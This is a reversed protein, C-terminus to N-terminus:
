RGLRVEKGTSASEYLADMVQQVKLSEEIPVLPKKNEIISNVFHQIRDEHTGNKANYFHTTEFGHIGQKFLKAPFLSMGAETGLLDVGCERDDGPHFGAWSTELTITYGKKMRIYASSHDEVDFTRKPDIESKGWTNEGRGRPGFKAHTTASVAAVDFDNMLYFMIDILGGGSEAMVGGGALKKQTFWSGIRPIGNHRHWFARAHYVEGLDGRQVAARATQAHRDFRLNKAVMVTRRAKQAAAVIKAADKANTAMPKEILVHKRANLADIAVQAHLYNPLAITVADIDPQELLEKYNTYTRPVHYKEAAERLRQANTEAIAVAAARPCHLLSNLHETGVAGAGIVACRLKERM